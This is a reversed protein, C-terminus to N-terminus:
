PDPRKLPSIGSSSEISQRSTSTPLPLRSSSASTISPIIVPATCVPMDHSTICLKRCNTVSHMSKKLSLSPASGGAVTLGRKMLSRSPASGTRIDARLYEDGCSFNMRSVIRSSSSSPKTYLFVPASDALEGSMRGFGPGSWYRMVTSRCSGFADVLDVVHSICIM